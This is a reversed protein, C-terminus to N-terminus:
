NKGPFLRFQDMNTQFKLTMGINRRLTQDSRFWNRHRFNPDEKGDKDLARLEYSQILVSEAIDFVRGIVDLVLSNTGDMWSNPKYLRRLDPELPTSMKAYLARFLEGVAFYILWKRELAPKLAEKSDKLAKRQSEWLERVREALFYTGAMEKFESDTLPQDRDSFVKCYGGTKSIDFLYRTGGYMDDPGFNFAHLTKAFDELGVTIEGQKSPSRKNKYAFRKGGRYLGYFRVTLDKQVADNSRFDAVKVSNQTNNFRTTDQVFQLERPFDFPSLGCSRESM